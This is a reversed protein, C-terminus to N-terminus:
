VGETDGLELHLEERTQHRESGHVHREGSGHCGAEVIAHVLVVEVYGGAAGDFTAIRVEIAACVNNDVQPKM